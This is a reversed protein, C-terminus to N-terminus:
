NGYKNYIEESQKKWYKKVKDKLRQVEEPTELRKKFISLLSLEETVPNKVQQVSVIEWGQLGKERLQQEIDAGPKLEYKVIKYDFINTSYETEKTGPAEKFKKPQFEKQESM